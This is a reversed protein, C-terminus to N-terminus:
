WRIRLRQERNAITRAIEPAMSSMSTTRILEVKQAQFESALVNGVNANTALILIPDFQPTNAQLIRKTQAATSIPLDSSRSMLKVEVIYITRPDYRSQIVIDPRATFSEEMPASLFNFNVLYEPGLLLKLEEGLLHVLTDEREM